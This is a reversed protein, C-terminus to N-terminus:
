FVIVVGIVEGSWLLVFGRLWYVSSSSMDGISLSKMSLMIVVLGGCDGM